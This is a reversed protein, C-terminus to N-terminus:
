DKYYDFRLEDLISEISKFRKHFLEKSLIKYFMRLESAIEGPLKNFCKLKKNFDIAWKINSFFKNTPSNFEDFLWTYYDRSTVRSNLMRSLKDQLALIKENIKSNHLNICLDEFEDVILIRKIQSCIDVAKGHYQLSM